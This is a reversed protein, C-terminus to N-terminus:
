LRAIAAEQRMNVCIKRHLSMVFTHNTRYSAPRDTPSKIGRTCKSWEYITAPEQVAELWRPLEECRSAVIDDCLPLDSLISQATVHEPESKLHEVARNLINTVERPNL